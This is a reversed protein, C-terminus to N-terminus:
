AKAFPLELRLPVLAVMGKVPSAASRVAMPYWSAPVASDIATTMPHKKYNPPTAHRTKDPRTKIQTFKHQTSRNPTKTIIQIHINPHPPHYIENRNQPTPNLYKNQQQKAPNQIYLPHSICPNRTYISLPPSSPLLLNHMRWQKTM